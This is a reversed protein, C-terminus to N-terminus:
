ESVAQLLDAVQYRSRVGLRNMISNMHKEVTHLAITLESAIEPNTFGRIVLSAVERERVTLTSQMHSFPTNKTPTRRAMAKTGPVLSRALEAYGHWQLTDFREAADHAYVHAKPLSGRRQEAFAEFLALGAQFVAAHPLAVRAQM